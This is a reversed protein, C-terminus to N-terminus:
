LTYKKFSSFTNQDSMIRSAMMSGAVSSSSSHTSGHGEVKQRRKCDRRKSERRQFIRRRGKTRNRRKKEKKDEEEKQGREWENEEERGRWDRGAVIRNEKQSTGEWLISQGGWEKKQRHNFGLTTQTMLYSVYLFYPLPAYPHRSEQRVRKYHPLMQPIWYYFLPQLLQEGLSKSIQCEM